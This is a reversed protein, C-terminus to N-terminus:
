PYGVAPSPVRLHPRVAIVTRQSRGDLTHSAMRLESARQMARAMAPAVTMVIEAQPYRARLRALLATLMLTDGLLLHHVVLIRRVESPQTRRVGGRLLARPLVHLRTALRSM